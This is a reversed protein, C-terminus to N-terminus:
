GSSATKKRWWRELAAQAEGWLTVTRASHFRVRGIEGPALPANGMIRVTANFHPTALEYSEM